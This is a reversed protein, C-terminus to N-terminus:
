VASAALEAIQHFFGVVLGNNGIEDSTEELISLSAFMLISPNDRESIYAALDYAYARGLECDRAYDGTPTPQAPLTLSATADFESKLHQNM